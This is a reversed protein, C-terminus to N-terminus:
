FQTIVWTELLKDKRVGRIQSWAKEVFELNQNETAAHLNCSAFRYIYINTKRQYGGIWICHLNLIIWQCHIKLVNVTEIDEVHARVCVYIVSCACVCMCACIYTYTYMYIYTHYVIYIYICIYIRYIWIVCVDYLFALTDTQSGWTENNTARPM